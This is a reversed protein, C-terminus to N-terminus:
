GVKDPQLALQTEGDDGLLNRIIWDELFLKLIEDRNQLDTSREVIRRVIKQLRALAEDRRDSLILLRVFLTTTM